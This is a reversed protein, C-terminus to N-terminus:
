HTMLELLKMGIRMNCRGNMDLYAKVIDFNVLRGKVNTFIFIFLHIVVIIKKKKKKENNFFPLNYTHM